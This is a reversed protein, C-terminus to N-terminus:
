EGCLAGYIADLHFTRSKVYEGIWYDGTLGKHLRRWEPLIDKEVKKVFDAFYQKDRNREWKNVRCSELDSNHHRCFCDIHPHLTEFWKELEGAVSIIKEAREPCSINRRIFNLAEEAPNGPSKGGWIVASCIVLSDLAAEFSECQASFDSYRSWGTLIVGELPYNRAAGAWKLCNEIRASLKPSNAMPGDAGKFAAAGWLNVGSKKYNEPIRGDAYRAFPDAAYSWEVLDAKKGIARLEGTGWGRIMDAWLMPRAGANSVAKLLPEYHKMYLDARSHRELYKRCDLCTGFNWAEDGGLHFYKIKGAHIEFIDEIMEKVLAGAGPKLPCLEAPNDRHERFKRNCQLSLLMEMHGLGQVLPIVSIGSDGCKAIFDGILNKTYCNKFRWERNRWPYMGNYEALVINIKLGKLIDVIQLLRAPSPPLGKFDLHVGRNKVWPKMESFM